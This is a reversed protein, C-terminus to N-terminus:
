DPARRSLPHATRAPFPYTVEDPGASVGPRGTRGRSEVGHGGSDQLDKAVSYVMAKERSYRLPQGDFPDTPVADLYEPVLEQLSDPLRGQKRRYAELVTLVRTARM